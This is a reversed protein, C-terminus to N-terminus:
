GKKPPTATISWIKVEGDARRRIIEEAIRTAEAPCRADVYGSYSEVSGEPGMIGYEATVSYFRDNPEQDEEEDGWFEGLGNVKDPAADLREFYAPDVDPEETWVNAAASHGDGDTVLKLDFDTHGEVDFDVVIVEAGPGDALTWQVCGGHMGVVVRPLRNLQLIPGTGGKEIAAIMEATPPGSIVLGAPADRWLASLKAMQVADAVAQVAPREPADDPEEGHDYIHTDIAEDLMGAAAEAATILDAIVAPPEPLEIEMEAIHVWCDALETILDPDDPERYGREYDDLDSLPGGNKREAIVTQIELLGAQWDTAAPFRPADKGFDDDDLFTDARILNVLKLAAVDAVAKTVHLSRAWGSVDPHEGEVFYLTAKM